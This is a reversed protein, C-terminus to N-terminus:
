AEADSEISRAALCLALGAPLMMTMAVMLAYRLGVPGFSATFADSLAGTIVPGIGLGVLNAFFFAVAVAMSRRASGCVLHIVSFMAPVAAGLALGGIFNLQLFLAIDDVMLMAQYIPWVALLTLGPVTALASNGRRAIRDTVWGGLLTGVLAAAMSAAGYAISIRVLDVQLVRTLYAPIWTLAGYAVMFYLIMAVVTLVYSRKGALLTLALKLPEQPTAAVAIAAHRRPEALGFWTLLCLLLGPLGLVIFAWRWGHAAAIAAGGVFAALYGFSASSMFIALARTRQDPPFYDVILSQAPPIAGAEGVGVGLRALVLMPFSKAFGCAITAVSWVALSATIVLRRDGRDALRAVPIGLIAYTAAFAIGTLLGMATDSVQFETKIPEILVSVVHRDAYNSLSVLFLIALFGWRQRASYLTWRPAEDPLAPTEPGRM